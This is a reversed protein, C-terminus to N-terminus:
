KFMQTSGITPYDMRLGISQSSIKIIAQMVQLNMPIVATLDTWM